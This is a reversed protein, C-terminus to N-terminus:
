CPGPESSPEPTPRQANKRRLRNRMANYVAFAEQVGAEDESTESFPDSAQPLPAPSVSSGAEPRSGYTDHDAVLASGDRDRDGSFLHQIAALLKASDRFDSVAALANRKDQPNLASAELLISCAVEEDLPKGLRNEVQSRSMQFRGLFETVSAETRRIGFFAKLDQHILYIPSQGFKKRLFTLLNGVGSDTAYVALPEAKALTAARGTLRLMLVLAQKEKPVETANRWLSVGM